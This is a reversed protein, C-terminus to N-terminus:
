FVAIKGVLKEVGDGFVECCMMLSEDEMVAAARGREGDAFIAAPLGEAWIAVEGHGEVGFFVDEGAVEATM